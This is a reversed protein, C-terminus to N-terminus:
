ATNGAQRYTGGVWETCPEEELLPHWSLFSGDRDDTEVVLPGKQLTGDPLIMDHYARKM